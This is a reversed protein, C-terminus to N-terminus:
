AIRAILVSVLLLVLLLLVLVGGLLWLAAPRVAAPYMRLEHDARWRSSDGDFLQRKAARSM